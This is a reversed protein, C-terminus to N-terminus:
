RAGAAKAIAARAERVGPLGLGGLHEDYIALLARCSALLEPAAAMALGNADEQERSEVADSEQCSVLRALRLAPRAATSATHITAGTVAWPGPTHTTVTATM